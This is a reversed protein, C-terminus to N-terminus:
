SDKRRFDQVRRPRSISLAAVCVSAEGTLLDRPDQMPSILKDRSEDLVSEKAQRAVDGEM